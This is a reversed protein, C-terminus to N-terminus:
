GHGGTWKLDGDDTTGVDPLGGEEITQGSTADGDHEVLRTDGAIADCGRASEGLVGAFENIGAPDAGEIFIAKGILDGEFGTNRHVGGVEDDEHDIGTGADIWDVLFHGLEKALGIGIDDEDHVLGVTGVMVVSGAVEGAEPEAATNRGGGLVTAADVVEEVADVQFKGFEFGLFLGCDIM